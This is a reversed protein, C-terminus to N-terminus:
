DTDTNLDCPFQLLQRVIDLAQHLTQGDSLEGQNTVVPATCDAPGEGTEVRVQQAVEYEAVTRMEYCQPSGPM